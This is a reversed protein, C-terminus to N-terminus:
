FNIRFYILSAPRHPNGQDPHHPLGVHNKGKKCSRQAEAILRLTRSSLNLTATPEVQGSASPTTPSPGRRPSIHSPRPASKCARLPRSLGSWLWAFYIKWDVLFLRRIWSVALFDVLSM